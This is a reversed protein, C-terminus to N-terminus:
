IALYNTCFLFKVLYKISKVKKGKKRGFQILTIGGCGMAKKSM